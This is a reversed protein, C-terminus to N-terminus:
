RRARARLPARWRIAAHTEGDDGQDAAGVHALRREEVAEDALVRGDHAVLGPGGAVAMEAADLPVPAREPEDVGAAEGVVLAHRHVDLDPLLHALRDVLRVQQQEDDVRLDARVRAVRADDVQQALAALREQEDRVLDVVRRAGVEVVEVAEAGALRHRTPWWRFCDPSRSSTTL